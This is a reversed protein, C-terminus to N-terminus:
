LDHSRTLPIIYLERNVSNYVTNTHITHHSTWTSGKPVDLMGTVLLWILTYNRNQKLVTLDVRINYVTLFVIIQRVEM